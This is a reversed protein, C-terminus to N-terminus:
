HPGSPRTYLNRRGATRPCWLRPKKVRSYGGPAAGARVGLCHRPWDGAVAASSGTFQRRRVAEARCWLVAPVSTRVRRSGSSLAHGHRSGLLFAVGGFRPIVGIAPSSGSGPAVGKEGILDCTVHTVGGSASSSMKDNHRSANTKERYVNTGYGSGGGCSSRRRAILHRNSVVHGTSAGSVRLPLTTM